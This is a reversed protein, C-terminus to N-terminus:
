TLIMEFILVVFYCIIALIPLVITLPMLTAHHGDIQYDFEKINGDKDFMMAPQFVFILGVLLIYILLTVVKRSIM